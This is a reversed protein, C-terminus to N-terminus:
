GGFEPLAAFCFTQRDCLPDTASALKWSGEVLPSAGARPFISGVIQSDRERLLALELLRDPLERLRSMDVSTRPTM